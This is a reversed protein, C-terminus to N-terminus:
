QLVDKRWAGRSVVIFCRCHLVYVLVDVILTYFRRFRRRYFHVIFFGYLVELSSHFTERTSKRQMPIIFNCFSFRARCHPSRHLIFRARSASSPFRASASFESVRRGRPKVRTPPVSPQVRILISQDREGDALVRGYDAGRAGGRSVDLIRCTHRTPRGPSAADVGGTEEDHRLFIRFSLIDSHREGGTM